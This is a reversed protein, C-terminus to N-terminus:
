ILKNKINILLNSDHSEIVDSDSYRNDNIYNVVLVNHKMIKHRRVKNM